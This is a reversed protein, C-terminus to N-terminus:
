ASTTTAKVYAEELKQIFTLGDLGGVMKEVVDVDVDATGEAENVRMPKINLVFMTPISRIGYQSLLNGCHDMDDADIKYFKVKGEYQKAAEKIAPDMAKCPGCWDAYFDLFVVGPTRLVENEFMEDTLQVINADNAM